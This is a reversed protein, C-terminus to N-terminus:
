IGFLENVTLVRHVASVHARKFRVEARPNYQETVIADKEEGKYRKVWTENSVHDRRIQVIVHDGQRVPKHPHIYLV